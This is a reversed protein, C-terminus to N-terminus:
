ARRTSARRLSEPDFRGEPTGTWSEEDFDGAAACVEVPIGTLHAMGSVKELAGPGDAALVNVNVGKTRSAVSLGKAHQHGWGHPLAVTGPMLDDSLRLGIRVQGTASRVDVFAGAALGRAAADDPHMFLYNTDQGPGAFREANHTWSNHTKVERKTILKLGAPATAEREFQADLRQAAELLPTPALHVRGDATHVRRSLFDGGDGVPRERGHPERLLTKFSGQGSIRLLVSLLAEQPIRPQALRKSKTHRWRALELGRQAIRSGFLNVGSARCLDLYITAEDRAEGPAPVVPQTAQLYPRSQMGLMFPFIFPLDSRELPSTCPLQYHALTGTESPFIDLTILLDLKTLAERLRGSNAMTLLPNGGTVVLAKIQGRGPTLIEDALVGGPFADNVSGYDGVRSRDKRMLIGHKAGFAPFDVVGRGVLTGGARDLNGSVANIVEQLWYGLSGNRGMNVGTSCYLAAGGNASADVYDDVISRLDAASIKTVEACREPTWARVLQRVEDFGSFHADIRARDCANRAILEHLFALYFFADTDPRIFLHRGAAKATETRRPDLVIIKGGRAEIERLRKTPNAVQLFSWKSVVPNAGVIILCRTRDLDPFPLTFPFGYMSRSVAFKNACDQTASSYMQKSGIATMFGQAFIPHLLSFGAATGVYMAISEPGFDRRLSALKDGISELALEWSVSEHTGDSRRRQPRLM